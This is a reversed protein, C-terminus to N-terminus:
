NKTQPGCNRRLLRWSRTAPRPRKTPPNSNRRQPRRSKSLRNCTTGPSSLEQKLRANERVGGHVPPKTPKANDARKQQEKGNGEGPAAAPAVDEFVVMFHLAPTSPDNVPTVRVNVDKFQGNYKVRAQESVSGKGRKAKLLATRLGVVLGERAM